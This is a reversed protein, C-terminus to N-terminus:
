EQFVLFAKAVESLPVKFEQNDIEIILQDDILKQLVGKYRKRGNLKEKTTVNITQGLVEQYHHALRLPRNLGPSSVELNFRGSLTEEVELLDEVAHSIRSCDGLEVGGKKDIYLRLVRRGNETTLDVDLLECGEETVIPATLEIVQQVVEFTM